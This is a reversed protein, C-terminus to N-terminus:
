KKSYFYLAQANGSGKESLTYFGSNDSAFCIAEGQPEPLYSLLSYQKQLTQLMSENASRKYYYLSFYTKIIIGKGDNGAAASVVGNYPFSQVLVATNLTTTSYPYTIKYVGSKSDRKTIIYIDKTQNDVLFAEADRPGGAYAFEIKDFVAVTDTSAAPEEFRYFFSSTHVADNDGIEAIYLYRKTADPGISLAIDEWDRNTAGKIFVKKLISGTHSLLYLQPPNGSDEEVWLYGANKKSDAIGSAEAILAAMPYAVPTDKFATMASDLAAGAKKNCGTSQFSLAQLLSFTILVFLLKKM